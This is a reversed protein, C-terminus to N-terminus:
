NFDPATFTTFKMLDNYRDSIDEIRLTKLRNLSFEEVNFSSMITGVVVAKKLNDHSYDNTKSIYGM